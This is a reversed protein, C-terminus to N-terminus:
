QEVSAHPSDPEYRDRIADALEDRFATMSDDARHKSELKRIVGALDNDGFVHGVWRSFDHRSLHGQVVQAACNEIGAQLECFTSARLGIPTGDESFVFAKNASVPSDLYKTCHRVHRTLRPAVHFRRLMDISEVTPPLLAAEHIAMNALQEYWETPDIADGALRALADVESKEALRTVATIDIAQLVSAGLESPRWTVLTYAGLDLDLLTTSNSANLYYHSEDVLIRHPYGRQRRYKAVLPLHRHIYTRKQEHTLHSLNLVVSLGQHLFMLLDDGEPLMRNGGLVVTNPLAGLSIYDGEPDFVYVTYGQFIMQEMLLGALWSKGSQTDGAILVNRGRIVLEFPPQGEIAELVIKHHGGHELPIRIKDSVHDIYAGVAAPGDGSIVEDAHQKLYESGWEVAVGYECCRLLEHDNEADGIGLTNHRSVGLAGLLEHLGSSKSISAPLLMMRQRNFTISLPLEQERILSIAVESFGADMEVVCRGVKFDIGRETLATILSMPPAPGLQMTHGGALSIVAGNEAVVGDVFDLSGAVERLESLIRGTAIVVLIGRQRATRIAARVDTDLQGDTAVTGDYDTAIVRLRM